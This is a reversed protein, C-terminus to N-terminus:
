LYNLKGDGDFDNFRFPSDTSQEDGHWCFLRHSGDPLFEVLTPKTQHYAGMLTSSYSPQLIMYTRNQFVFKYIAAMGFQFWGSNLPSVVHEWPDANASDQVEAQKTTDTENSFSDRYVAGPLAPDFAAGHFLSDVCYLKAGIKLMALDKRYPLCRLPKYACPGWYDFEEYGIAYVGLASDVTVTIRPNSTPTGERNAERKSPLKKPDIEIMEYRLDAKGLHTISLATGKEFEAQQKKKEEPSYREWGCSFERIVDFCTNRDVYVPSALPEAPPAQNKSSEAPKKGEQCGLLAAFFLCALLPLTKM